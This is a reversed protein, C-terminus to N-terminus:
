LMALTKLNMPQCVRVGSFCEQALIKYAAETTHAADFFVHSNRDKCTVKSPDCTGYQTLGCCTNTGDELGYSQPNQVLNLIHQYNNGLIFASAPLTRGLEQIKLALKGNFKQVMSNLEDVCKSNLENKQNTYSPLCGMAEIDFVVFKRAGLNYLEKLHDGYNSILLQAFAEDNPPAGMTTTTNNKKLFNLAYDNVGIVLLFISKSLHGSVGNVCSIDKLHLPLYEEVTKKFLSIQEGLSLSGKFGSEPLIGASSSAYNFGEISNYSTTEVLRIAPPPVKLGLSEAFFDPITRGSTPRGSPGAPFDIGYPLFDYKAFTQIKNNNGADVTSDGFVYLAPALLLEGECRKMVLLVVCFNTILWVFVLFCWRISVLSLSSSNGM